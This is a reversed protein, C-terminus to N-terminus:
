KHKRGKKKGRLEKLMILARLTLIIITLIVILQHEMGHFWVGAGGGVM